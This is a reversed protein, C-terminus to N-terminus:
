EGEATEWGSINSLSAAETNSAEERVQTVMVVPQTYIVVEVKWCGYDLRRLSARTRMLSITNM